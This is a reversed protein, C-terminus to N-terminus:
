RRVEVMRREILVSLFNRVDAGVQEVPADYRAVLGSIIEGLTKDGDAERLIAAGIDDLAVAREPALLVWRGRVRDRHLRVGRLLAPRVDDCLTAMRTMM